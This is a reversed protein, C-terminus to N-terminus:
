KLSVIYRGSNGDKQFNFAKDAAMKGIIPKKNISLYGGEMLASLSEDSQGNFIFHGNKGNVKFNFVGKHKNNSSFIWPNKRLDTPHWFEILPRYENESNGTVLDFRPAVNGMDVESDELTIIYASLTICSEGECRINGSPFSIRMAEFIVNGNGSDELCSKEKGGLFIGAKPPSINIDGGSFIM